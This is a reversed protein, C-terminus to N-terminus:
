WAADSPSAAGRAELSAANSPTGIRQSAVAALGLDHIIMDTREDIDQRSTSPPLSLKASYWITERVTLVGLLADEQEVYSSISKVDVNNPTFLQGSTPKKRGSLVDLLTSKGAGSPGYRGDDLWSSGLRFHGAPADKRELKVEFRQEQLPADLSPLRHRAM